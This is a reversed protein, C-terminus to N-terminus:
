DTDVELVKPGLSDGTARHVTGQVVRSNCATFGQIFTQVSGLKIRDRVYFFFFAM